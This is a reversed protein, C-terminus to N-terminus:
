SRFISPLLLTPLHKLPYSFLTIQIYSFCHLSWQMDFIYNVLCRAEWLCYHHVDRRWTDVSQCLIPIVFLLKLRNGATLEIAFDLSYHAGCGIIMIKWRGDHFNLRQFPKDTEVSILNWWLAHCSCHVLGHYQVPSILYKIKMLNKLRLSYKDLVLQYIHNFWKWRAEDLYRGGAYGM